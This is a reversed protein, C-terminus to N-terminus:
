KRQMYFVKMQEPYDDKTWEYDKLINFHRGFSARVEAVSFYHSYHKGHSLVWNRSHSKPRREGPIYPTDISLCYLYYYGGDKMVRLINKLYRGWQSKRLHHLCGFDIVVDFHKDPYPLSLVSGNTLDVSVPHQAKNKRAIKLAETAIEIGYAKYGREAFAIANRANGCGVDLVAGSVGREGLFSIFDLVTASPQSKFYTVDTNSFKGKLSGWIREYTEKEIQEYDMRKEM